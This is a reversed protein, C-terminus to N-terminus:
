APSCHNKQGLLRQYLADTEEIMREAGFAPLVRKKASCSLQRAEEPHDLLWLINEAMALPNGPPSLM